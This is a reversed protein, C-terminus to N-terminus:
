RQRKTFGKIPGPKAKQLYMASEVGGEVSYFFFSHTRKIILFILQLGVM